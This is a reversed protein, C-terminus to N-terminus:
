QNILLEDRQRRKLVNVYELAGKTEYDTYAKSAWIIADPLNGEIEFWIAMNYCARGAVKSEANKTELEWLESAGLWDGTEARRRAIDFNNAGRVFYDRSVRKFTTFYKRAYWVGNNYSYRNFEEERNTVLNLAKTPNVSTASVISNFPWNKNSISNNANNVTLQVEIRATTTVTAKHEPVKVVVGLPGNKEVTQTSYNVKAESDLSRLDIIADVGEASYLSDLNISNRLLTKNNYNPITDLVKMYIFRDKARFEQLVGNCFQKAGNKDFDKTELDLLDTAQNIKNQSSTISEINVILISDIHSPLSIEAPIPVSLTLGKTSSCSYVSFLLLIAFVITINKM